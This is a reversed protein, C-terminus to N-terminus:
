AANFRHGILMSHASALVGLAMFMNCFIAVNHRASCNAEPTNASPGESPATSKDMPKATATTTPKDTTTTTQKKTTTTPKATTTTTPKATTTTSMMERTFNENAMDVDAKGFLCKCSVSSNIAKGVRESIAACNRNRSCDWEQKVHENGKACSAMFCFHDRDNCEGVLTGGFGDSDFHGKKCQLPKATIVEYHVNTLDKGKEGYDCHCQINTLNLKDEIDQQTQEICDIVSKGNECGWFIAKICRRALCYNSYDLPCTGISSNKIILSNDVIINRGIKCELGSCSDMFVSSLVLILSAAIANM